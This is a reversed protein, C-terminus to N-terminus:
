KGRKWVTLDQVEGPWNVGSLSVMPQINWGGAEDLTDEPINVLGTGEGAVVISGNVTDTAAETTNSPAFLQASVTGGSIDMAVDDDDTYTLNLGLPQNTYVKGAM